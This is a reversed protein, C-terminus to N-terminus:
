ESVFLIGFYKVTNNWSSVTNLKFRETPKHQLTVESSRAM